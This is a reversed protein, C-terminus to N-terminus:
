QNYLSAEGTIAVFDTEFITNYQKIDGGSELDDIYADFHEICEEMIRITNKREDTYTTPPNAVDFSNLAEEMLQKSHRANAKENKLISSSAGKNLARLTSMRTNLQNTFVTIERNALINYEIVSMPTQTAYDVTDRDDPHFVDQSKACGSAMLGVLIFAIMLILLKKMDIIRIRM